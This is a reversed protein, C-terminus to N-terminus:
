VRIRKEYIHYSLCQRHENCRLVEHVLLWTRIIYISSGTLQNNGQSVVTYTSCDLPVSTFQSMCRADQMIKRSYQLPATHRLRIFNPHQKLSLTYLVRYPFDQTCYPFTEPFTGLAHSIRSDQALNHIPHPGITQM